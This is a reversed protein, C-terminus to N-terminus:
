GDQSVEELKCWDPRKNEASTTLERARRNDYEFPCYYFEVNLM